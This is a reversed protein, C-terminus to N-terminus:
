NEEKEQTPNFTKEIIKMLMSYQGLMYSLTRKSNKSDISKIQQWLSNSLNDLDDETMAIMVFDKNYMNDGGKMIYYIVM